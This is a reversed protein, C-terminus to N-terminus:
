STIWEIVEEPADTKIIIEIDGLVSMNEDIMHFNNNYAAQKNVFFKIETETKNKELINRALEEIENKVIYRKILYLSSLEDEAILENKEIKKITIKEGMINRISNEVKTQDETPNVKAKLKIKTNKLIKEQNSKM